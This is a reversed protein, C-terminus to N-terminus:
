NFHYAFTGSAYHYAKANSQVEKTRLTVIAKSSLRKWAFNLGIQQSYVWHKIGFTVPGKDSRFLGGQITGDYAAFNLQPKTFLFLELPTKRQDGTRNQIRSNAYSSEYFSNMNGLRILIGANAGSFTNGIQVSSSGSVDILRNASHYFLHQYSLDFNLGLENKVQYDWGEVTYYANLIKKHFFTQVEKGLANPGLIGVQATAKLISENKYFWGMAVSAYAYGAFPRDHTKVDPLHSWYSNYIKQGLEFDIIKKEFKSNINEQKLAHRYYLFAGETYYRDQKFAIYYDNDTILGIENKYSQGYCAIASLLLCTIALCCTLTKVKSLM